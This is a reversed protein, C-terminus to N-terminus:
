FQFDLPYLEGINRYKGFNALLGRDKLFDYATAVLRMDDANLCTDLVLWDREAVFLRLEENIPRTSEISSTELEDELFRLARALDKKKVAEEYDQWERVARIRARGRHFERRLTRTSFLFPSSRSLSRPQAVALLFVPVSKAM